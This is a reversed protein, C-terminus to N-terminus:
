HKLLLAVFKMTKNFISDIKLSHFLLPKAEFMYVAKALSHYHQGNHLLPWWPASTWYPVIFIYTSPHLEMKRITFGIQSVPPCLFYILDKDPNCSFFDISINADTLSKSIYQNCVSNSHDAFGDIQPTHQFYEFITSLMFRPIGWMDTNTSFRSGKDALMIRSHSRDTWLPIVTVNLDYELTKLRILLSQVVQRRSGHLLYYFCVTSDTEWYIINNPFQKKISHNYELFTVIALLERRGSSLKREDSSFEYNSMEICDGHYLTFVRDNSADSILLGEVPVASNLVNNVIKAVERQTVTMSGARSNMIAKGNFRSLHKSLFELEYLGHVFRVQCYWDKALVAHGLENYCNRPILNVISGHSRKLSQIKGLISAAKKALVSGQQKHQAILMNLANLYKTEKDSHTHYLMRVSDAIFGQYLASQSAILVSKKISINWGALRFILLVVHIKQECELATSAIVRGDDITLNLKSSEYNSHM